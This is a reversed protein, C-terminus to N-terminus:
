PTPRKPPRPAPVDTTRSGPPPGLPSGAAAGQDRSLEVSGQCNGMSAATVWKGKGTALDGRLTVHFRENSQFSGGASWTGDPALEGKIKFRLREFELKALGALVQGEIHITVRWPTRFARCEYGTSNGVSARGFWDGDFGERRAELWPLPEVEKTTSDPAAHPTGTAATPAGPTDLSPDPERRPAPTVSAPPVYESREGLLPAWVFGEGDALAIRYWDREKVRGTVTVETGASLHDIRDSDTSPTARVNANKLAVLLLEVNEVEIRPKPPPVAAALKLAKLEELRRKALRVYTGDPFQSLYDELDALNTSDKVSRWFEVELAQSGDQAPPASPAPQQPAAIATRPVAFVIDGRDYDIDRLKGYRPTQKVETLNTLRSTIYLGIETGTVYGDRNSDSGEEGALARLFLRRFTGDDSVTQGADGSSLFQRVPLTTARTIAAPYLARQTDFITGAFCSDFAAFVHKARALRVYEGFRRLPLAALKFRAGAEPSPADVPVLFGEGDVTHGHGAFWVVLRAEEDEGKVIFFEELATRLGGSDLDTRLDVEFGRAALAGAIERADEIAKSLVPWGGTYRDNGIVLAYSSRYLQFTEVVPADPADHGRIAVSLGRSADAAIAAHGILWAGLLPSLCWLLSSRSLRGM